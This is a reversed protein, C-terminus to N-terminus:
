EEEEDEDDESAEDTEDLEPLAGTCLEAIQDLSAGMDARTSGSEQIVDYIDKITDELEVTVQKKTAM